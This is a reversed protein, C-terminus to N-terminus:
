DILEPYHNREKRASVWMSWLTRMCEKSDIYATIEM